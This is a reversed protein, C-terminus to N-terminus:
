FAQLVMSLIMPVGMTFVLRNMPVSGMKNSVNETTKMTGGKEELPSKQPFAAMVRKKSQVACFFHLGSGSKCKAAVRNIYNYCDKEIRDLACFPSRMYHNTIIEINGKTKEDSECGSILWLM